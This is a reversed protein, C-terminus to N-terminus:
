KVIIALTMKCIGGKNLGVVWTTEYNGAKKPAHMDVTIDITDGPDLIFNMDYRSRDHFKDGSIYSYDITGKRWAATGTNRITWRATFKQRPNFVTGDSPSKAVLACALTGSYQHANPNPTRTPKGKESGPLTPLIVQTNTPFLFLITSTPLPTKTPSATSTPPRTPTHTPPQFQVTQTHAAAATEYIITEVAGPVPTSASPASFAPLECALLTLIIGLSAVLKYKVGKKLTQM